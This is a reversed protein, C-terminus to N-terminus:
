LKDGILECQKIIELLLILKNSLELNNRDENSILGTETFWSELEVPTECREAEEGALRKSKREIVKKNAAASTSPMDNMEEITTVDADTENSDLESTEEGDEVFYKDAEFENRKFRNQQELHDRIILM